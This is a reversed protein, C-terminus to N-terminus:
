WSNTYSLVNRRKEDEILHWHEHRKSFTKMNRIYMADHKEWLEIEDNFEEANRNDIASDGSIM